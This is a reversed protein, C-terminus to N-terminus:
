TKNKLLTIPADMTMAEERSEQAKAKMIAQISGYHPGYGNSNRLSRENSAPISLKKIHKVHLYMIRYLDATHQCSLHGTVCVCGHSFTRHDELAMSSELPDKGLYSEYKKLM